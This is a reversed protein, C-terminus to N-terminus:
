FGDYWKSQALGPGQDTLQHSENLSLGHVRHISQPCIGSFKRYFFLENIRFIGL